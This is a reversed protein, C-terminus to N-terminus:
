CKNNHKKKRTVALLTIAGLIIVVGIVTFMITGSGGTIPLTFGKNNKVVIKNAEEHSSANVTVKVPAKLLNYGNTPAQTEVIWYESFGDTATQGDAGYALGNFSVKGGTTTVEWDKTHDLPDKVANTQAKADAESKYIKFKAGDLLAATKADQKEINIGGTHVGPKQDDPVTPNKDQGVGNTYELNAGNYIPQGLPANENITTKFEMSFKPYVGDVAPLVNAAEIRGEELVDITLTYGNVDNPEEVTYYKPDFPTKTGDPSVLYVELSGTVYCLNAKDIADKVTYKQSDAMDDAITPTIIWTVEDGISGGSHKNGDSSVFKDIVPQEKMVNKPYVHVDYIWGDGDPNTMPVSVFFDDAKQAVSSNPSEVVKYIGAPLNNFVALGGGATTVSIEVPNALDPQATQVDTSEDLVKTITFEVGDLPKADAPVQTADELGTAPTGPDPLTDMYYKHITLSGQRDPDPLPDAAFVTTGLLGVAVAATMILASIKKRISKMM